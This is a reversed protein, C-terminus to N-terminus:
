NQSSPTSVISVHVLTTGDALMDFPSAKRTRFLTEMSFIDGARALEIITANCHVIQLFSLNFRSSLSATGGTNQLITLDLNLQWLSFLPLKIHISYSSQFFIYRTRDSVRNSPTWAKRYNSQIRLNISCISGGHCCTRETRPYDGSGILGHQLPLSQVHNRSATKQNWTSRDIAPTSAAELFLSGSEIATQDCPSRRAM